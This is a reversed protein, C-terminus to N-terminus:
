NNLYLNVAKQLEDFVDYPILQCGVKIGNDKLVAKYESTLQVTLQVTVEPKHNEIETLFDIFSLRKPDNSDESFCFGIFKDRTYYLSDYESNEFINSLIRDKTDKYFKLGKSEALKLIIEAQVQTPKYIAINKM